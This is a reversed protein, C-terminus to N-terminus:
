LGASMGDVSKSVLINVAVRRNQAKGQETTNDAAPDAEAMGTPTMMRYPAWDCEQQLFNTVRAARKESLEQNYEYDGTSDTYGVVLLLANDTAKAQEAAQCLEARAQQSLNYRATDFYVNTTGKVNYQDINAVRGRLAETAAENATFRQDTGTHIMRATELHKSKLAVKTAILGRNAWEVTEVEVPLGNLLDSAALQDKDLGLFGGSSRIETSPSIAVVTRTGDASTVQVKDGDRASIVGEFEPGEPMGTLDSPMTGVVTMTEGGSQVGAQPELEQSQAGATVPLALAALAAFTKSSKTMAIM